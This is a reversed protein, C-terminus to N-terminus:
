SSLRKGPRPWILGLLGWVQEDVAWQGKANVMMGKLDSIGGEGGRDKNNSFAEWPRWAFAEGGVLLVGDGGTVKTGNSLHFGDDLCADIASAPAPIDGLVNLAALDTRTEESSRPGRDRSAPPKRPHARPVIRSPRIHGSNFRCPPPTLSASLSHRFLTSNSPYLPSLNAPLSRSSSSLSRCAQSTASISSRLARLLQPSPPRMINPISTRGRDKKKATAKNYFRFRHTSPDSSDFFIPRSIHPSPGHRAGLDM